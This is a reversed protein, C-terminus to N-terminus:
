IGKGGSINGKMLQKQSVFFFVLVPLMYILALACFIGYDGIM